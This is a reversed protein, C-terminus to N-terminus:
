QQINEKLFAFANYESPISSKSESNNIAIGSLLQPKVIIMLRQIQLIKFIVNSPKSIINQNMEYM